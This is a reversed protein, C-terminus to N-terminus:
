QKKIRIYNRTKHNRSNSIKMQILILNIEHYVFCFSSLIVSKYALILFENQSWLPLDSKRLSPTLIHTLSWLFFDHLPAASLTATKRARCFKDLPPPAEGTCKPNLYYQLWYPFGARSASEGELPPTRKTLRATWRMLHRCSASTGIGWSAEKKM